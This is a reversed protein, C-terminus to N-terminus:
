DLSGVHAAAVYVDVVTVVGCMPSASHYFLVRLQDCDSM